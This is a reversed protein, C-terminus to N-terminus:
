RLTAPRKSWKINIIGAKFGVAVAPLLYKTIM